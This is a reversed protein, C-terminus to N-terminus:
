IDDELPSDYFFTIFTTKYPDIDSEKIKKMLNNFLIFLLTSNITSEIIILIMADNPAAAAITAQKASTAVINGRM